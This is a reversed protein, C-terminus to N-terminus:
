FHVLLGLDHDKFVALSDLKKLLFFGVTIVVVKIRNLANVQEM